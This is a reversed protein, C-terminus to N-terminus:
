LNSAPRRLDHKTIWRNVTARSRGLYQATQTVNWDNMELAALLTRLSDDKGQDTDHPANTQHLFTPPLDDLGLVPGTAVAALHRAVLVAQQLNGPWISKDVASKLNAGIETTVTQALACEREYLRKFVKFTSPYHRLPPVQVTKSVGLRGLRETIRDSNDQTCSIIITTKPATSTITSRAACATLTQVLNDPLQDVDEIYIVGSFAPNTLAKLIDEGSDLGCRLHKFDAFGGEDTLWRALAEKGSGVEGQLLLTLGAKAITRAVPLDVALGPHQMFVPEWGSHGHAPHFPKKAMKVQTKISAQEPESLISHLGELRPHDSQVSVSQNPPARLVDSMLVDDLVQGIIDERDLKLIEAMGSSADLIRGRDDVAIRTEDAPDDFEGYPSVRCIRTHGYTRTFFKNEIRRASKMLVSQLIRQSTHDVPKDTTANLVCALTGEPGFIPVVTCTLNQISRSFHDTRVVSIPQKTKICTGIGNTGQDQESWIAGPMVGVNKMRGILQHDCRFNVNVADKSAISVLYESDILRAFLRKLEPTSIGILDSLPELQDKIEEAELVNPDKIGDPSLKHENLCRIWSTKIEQSLGRVIQALQNETGMM